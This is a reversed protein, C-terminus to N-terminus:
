YTASIISANGHITLRQIVGARNNIRTEAADMLLRAQHRDSARMQVKSSFQQRHDTDITTGKASTLCLIQYVGFKPLEWAQRKLEAAIYKDSALM